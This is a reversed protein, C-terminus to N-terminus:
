AHVGHPWQQTRFFPMMPPRRDIPRSRFRAIAASSGCSSPRQVRAPKEWAVSHGADEVQAWRAGAIRTAWLRMMGPPSLLDADAAILLTPVRV